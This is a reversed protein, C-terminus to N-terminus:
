PGAPGSSFFVNAPLDASPIDTNLRILETLTHRYTIGYTREIIPLQPDNRYFFRDGDRLAQFQQKWIAHQLSGLETNALHKEPLMAVFPDIRDVTKYIAKLRAALTTRRIGTVAGEQTGLPLPHGAADFLAVFDLIRPDDIRLGRPLEETSEGTIATFSRKPELGFAHRIQNYTAMGHDRGRAIDIAGLDVVGHFCGPTAPDTFCAGPDAVGPGPVEFLASRLANDIQEDNKYQPEDGLTALIPGLGILPVLSPNFFAVNLPVTLVIRSPNHPDPAVTVHMDLLRRIQETTYRTADAHLELDGHIMSHARYAFAAFENGLTADVDKKYGSYEPLRVGVAPLFQTYTIYQQEAGVVRRAIQFKKEEGLGSSGLAAVIRNHERTFLTHLATLAMNENARVDGAEVRDAPHGLLTGDVDMAPATSANGRASARPLYGDPTTLLRARRHTPDGDGPGDRLWDLRDNTTGYISSGDIYSSVANTQQRPNSRSAGTGPAPTDRHFGIVGFDNRFGELPDAPNFPIPANEGGGQARGITHDMFQGWLWVWASVGRESFLNQGGDNFIRDSVYRAGPSDRMAKIGDRYGPEVVWRYPTGAQGWRPHALNNGSGDLARNGPSTAAVAMGPSFAVM